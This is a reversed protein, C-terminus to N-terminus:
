VKNYKGYGLKGPIYILGVILFGLIIVLLFFRITGLLAATSPSCNGIQWTLYKEHFGHNPIIIKNKSM